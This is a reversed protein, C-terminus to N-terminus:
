PVFPAGFRMRLVPKESFKRFLRLFINPKKSTPFALSAPPLVFPKLFEYRPFVPPAAALLPLPRFFGDSEARAVGLAPSAFIVFVALPLAIKAIKKINKM